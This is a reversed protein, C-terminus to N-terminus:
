DFGLVVHCLREDSRMSQVIQTVAFEESASRAQM